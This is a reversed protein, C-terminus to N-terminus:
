KTISPGNVNLLKFIMELDELSGCSGNYGHGRSNYIDIIGDSTDYIIDWDEDGVTKVFEEVFRSGFGIYHCGVKEFDTKKLM